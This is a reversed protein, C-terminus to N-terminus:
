INSVFPAQRAKIVSILEDVAEHAQTKVQESYDYRAANAAFEELDLIQYSFDPRVLIDIDLDIYTLINGSIAPPMSLNCYYLRTTGDDELFRFVNYWRDLWYYEITRTGRPIEGLLHHQVDFQFEADLVIMSDEQRAITADWRRYETGDYKLVRVTIKAHAPVENTTMPLDSIPEKLM